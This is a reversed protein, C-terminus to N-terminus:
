NRLPLVFRPDVYRARPPPPAAACALPASDQVPALLTVNAFLTVPLLPLSVATTVEDRATSDHPAALAPAQVHVCCAAEDSVLRAGDRPPTPPVERTACTACCTRRPADDPTARAAPCGCTADSGCLLEHLCFRAGEPLLLAPLMVAFLLTRLFPM